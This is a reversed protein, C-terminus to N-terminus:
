NPSAAPQLMNVVALFLAQADRASLDHLSIADIGSMAEIFLLMKSPQYKLEMAQSGDDNTRVIYDFPFNHRFILEAKPEKLKIETISGEALELPRSLKIVTEEISPADQDKTTPAM